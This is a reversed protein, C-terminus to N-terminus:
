LLNLTQSLGNSDSYLQVVVPVSHSAQFIDQHINM